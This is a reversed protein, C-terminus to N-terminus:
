KFDEINLSKNCYETEELQRNSSIFLIKGDKYQGMMKKYWAFGHRDLNSLPEDLLIFPVSSTFALALKVRQKMGSSFYKLPKNSSNKLEATEIIESVSLNNVFPKFKQYFSVQEYLTLEEMLDLYPAAFSIHKYINDGDIRQNGLFWETTGENPTIYGAIIQLLTSKGSGNYGTITVADGQLAEFSVNKFIWQGSFKKSVQLLSIRNM